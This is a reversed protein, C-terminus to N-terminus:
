RTYRLVANGDMLMLLSHISWRKCDIPSPEVLRVLDYFMEETDTYVDWKFGREDARVRHDV